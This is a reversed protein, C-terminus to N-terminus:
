RRRRVGNPDIFETGVPLARAQALTTVRIPGASTGSAGRMASAPVEGARGFQQPSYRSRPSRYLGPLGNPDGGMAKFGDRTARYKTGLGAALVKLSPKIQGRRLFTDFKAPDAVVGELIGLDPGTLVGLNYAAPGKLLMQLNTAAAKATAYKNPDGIYKGNPGWDGTGLKSIADDFQDVAAGLENIASITETTKAVVGDTVGASQQLVGSGNPQYIRGMNDRFFGGGAPKLGLEPPVQVGGNPSADALMRAGGGGSRQAIKQVYDRTEAFPIRSVFEAESIQGRRPDGIKSLWEDVAGPGANYAALALTPSGYKQLQESLYGKGLAENVAPDTRARQALSPDGMKRAMYDATAPMLQARGFAGKPSVAAQNGGSEQQILSPWLSELVGGPSGGSSGGVEFLQEDGKKKIFESNRYLERGDSAVLANGVVKPETSGPTTGLVQGTPSIVSHDPGGMFPASFVAQGNRTQHEGPKVIQLEYDGAAAKGWAEPNARLAMEERPGLKLSAMLTELRRREEEARQRDAYSRRTETITQGGLVGDLTEWFSPGKPRAPVMAGPVPQNVLGFM